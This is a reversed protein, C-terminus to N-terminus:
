PIIKLRILVIESRSGLRIPPGWTGLGSSVIFTTNEKRVMGHDCEYMAETIYNFPWMQGRHTHGSLQLAVGSLVAEDLGLPQHDLLVVPYDEKYPRILQDLEARAPFSDTVIRRRSVSRDMRGALCFLSDILVARDALVEIDHQQLYAEARHFDGILEHNGAIAYKGLPPQIGNLLEGLRKREVPQPNDDFVDGALLLLDPKLENIEKVWRRLQKRGNVLGLHLDSVMVVALEREEEVCPSKMEVEYESVRPHTANVYGVCLLVAVSFSVVAFLGRKLGKYNKIVVRMPEKIFLRWLLRFIDIVVLAMAFYAMAAMWFVAINWLAETFLSDSNRKLIIAPFFTLAVAWFLIAYAIRMSKLGALAQRGRIFVYFDLSLFLLFIVIIFLPM